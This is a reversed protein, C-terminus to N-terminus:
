KRIYASLTSTSNNFSNNHIQSESGLANGYINTPRHAPTYPPTHKPINVPGYNTVYDPKTATSVASNLSHIHKSSPPVQVDASNYGGLFTRSCFRKFRSYLDKPEPVLGRRQNVATAKAAQSRVAAPDMQVLRNYSQAAQPTPLNRDPYFNRAAQYFDDWDEMLSNKDVYLPARNYMVNLFRERAQDYSDAGVLADSIRSARDAITDYGTRTRTNRLKQQEAYESKMLLEGPIRNTNDLDANLLNVRNYPVNGLKGPANGYAYDHLKREAATIPTMGPVFDGENEFGKPRNGWQKMVYPHQQRRQEYQRFREIANAQDIKNYVPRPAPMKNASRNFRKYAMYRVYANEAEHPNNYDYDPLMNDRIARWDEPSYTRLARMTGAVYSPYGSYGVDYAEEPTLGHGAALRAGFESARIEERLTNYEDKLASDFYKPLPNNRPDLKHLVYPDLRDNLLENGFRAYDKADAINFLRDMRGWHGLDSTITTLLDKENLPVTDKDYLGYTNSIAHGAEHFGTGFLKENINISNDNPSFWANGDVETPKFTIPLLKKNKELTIDPFHINSKLKDFFAVTGPHNNYPALHNSWIRDFIDEPLLLSRYIPLEAINFSKDWKNEQIVARRLYAEYAAKNRPDGKYSNLRNRVAAEVAAELKRRNEPTVEDHNM